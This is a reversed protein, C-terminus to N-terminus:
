GMCWNKGKYSSVEVLISFLCVRIRSLTFRHGHQPSLSLLCFEGFSGQLDWIGCVRCLQLTVECTFCFPGHPPPSHARARVCVCCERLADEKCKMYFMRPCEPGESHSWVTAEFGRSRNPKGLSAADYKLIIIIIILPLFPRHCSVDM